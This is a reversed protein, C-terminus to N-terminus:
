SRPFPVQTLKGTTTLFSGATIEAIKVPGGNKSKLDSYRYTTMKRPLEKACKLKTKKKLYIAADNVYLFVLRRFSVSAIFTLDM